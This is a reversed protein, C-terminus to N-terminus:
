AQVGDHDPLLSFRRDNVRMGASEGRLALKIRLRHEALLIVIHPVFVVVPAVRQCVEEESYLSRSFLRLAGPVLAM